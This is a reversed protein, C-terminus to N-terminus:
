RCIRRREHVWAYGNWYRDSEVWCRRPRGYDDYGYPSYGYPSNYYHGAGAIAGGIILGGIIGGAIAAGSNGRHHRHGAEAITPAVMTIALALAALTKKM